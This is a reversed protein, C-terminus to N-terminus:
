TSINPTNTNLSKSHILFSIEAGQFKGKNRDKQDKKKQKSKLFFEIDALNQM